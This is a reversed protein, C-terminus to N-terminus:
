SANICGWPLVRLVNNSTDAIYIAPNTDNQFVSISMPTTYLAGRREGEAFGAANGWMTGAFGGGTLPTAYITSSCFNMYRVINNGSDVCYLMPLQQTNAGGSIACYNSQASSLTCGSPAALLASTGTQPFYQPSYPPPPNTLNNMNFGSATGGASGGGAILTVNYTGSGSLPVQRLVNNGTDAVMIWFANATIGKPGNFRSNTGVGDVYGPLPTGDSGTGGGGGAVTSVEGTAVVIMRIVNNGTDAVYLKAVGDYAIGTPSNFMVCSGSGDSFGASSGSSSGAFVTTTPPGVVNIVRVNNNGTDAVYVHGASDAAIGAPANFLAATGVGDAFGATTGGNGGALTIVTRSWATNLPGTLVMRILNNGTDAVYVTHNRDVSLAQPGNFLAASGGADAYGATTGSASGGGAM